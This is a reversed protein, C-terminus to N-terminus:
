SLPDLRAAIRMEEAAEAARGMGLLNHGYWSHALAYNPDLAIARRFAANGEEWRSALTYARGLAAYGDALMSDLAVAREAARTAQTVAPQVPADVYFPVLGLAAGLGAHARAFAPDKRIAQEFYEVARRVGPGRQFYQGRLFLDYAELNETGQPTGPRVPLGTDFKVRLATAIAKAIDDQVAFIDSGEREYSESWMVLGDAASTLQASVRLREGARRVTGELVAGVDLARAVERVDARKGKFAYASSRAAVRLTPLKALAVTLEDAMGDAFYTNATDGGVNEFPLVALSRVDGGPTMAQDRGRMKVAFGAALLVAVVAVGIGIAMRIRSATGAPRRNQLAPTGVSDLRGLIERASQPRANPNKELCQMVLDALQRPVDPRGPGIPVPVEVAHAITLRHLEQDAFPPKGTLLEYGLCGLSYIDARHDTAPDGSAQEPAMYAPTGVGTGLQTLTDARPLTTAATVAKAIGFDTVVAADGSLLVNEPKIDRHVVGHEHAYSLARAVDRLVHTCETAPLGEKNTLRSRLSLGEVLPMTYYPLGAAIGAVHLPVINPHQLQAALRIERTFREASVGASLEPALVKVVVKRGLATEDAVFVRSMGGGGLERELRYTSGLTAQLQDRLDDTM